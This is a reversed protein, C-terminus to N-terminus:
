VHVAGSTVGLADALGKEAGAKRSHLDALGAQIEQWAELGEEM